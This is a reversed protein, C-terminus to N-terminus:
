PDPADKRSKSRADVHYWRRAHAAASRVHRSPHVGRVRKLAGRLVAPSSMVLKAETTTRTFYKIVGILEIVPKAYRTPKGLIFDEVVVVDPRTREIGALVDRTTGAEWGHIFKGDELEAMGTTLGPDIGLIKM